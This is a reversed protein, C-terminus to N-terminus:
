TTKNALGIICNRIPESSKFVLKKTTPTSKSSTGKMKPSQLSKSTGISKPSWLEDDSDDKGDDAEEDIEDDKEDKEEEDEDKEDEYWNLLDKSPGIQSVSKKLSGSVSKELSGFEDSSDFEDFSSLYLGLEDSSLFELESTSSCELESTSSCELESSTSDILIVEQDAELNTTKAVYGVDPKVVDEVDKSPDAKEFFTTYVDDAVSEFQSNEPKSRDRADNSPPKLMMEYSELINSSKKKAANQSVSPTNKM